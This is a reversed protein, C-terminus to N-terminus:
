NDTSIRKAKNCSNQKKLKNDIPFVLNPQNNNITQGSQPDQRQLPTDANQKLMDTGGIVEANAVSLTSIASLFVFLKKNIKM